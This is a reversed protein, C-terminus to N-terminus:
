TGSHGEACIEDGATGNGKCAAETVCSAVTLSNEYSRYQGPEIKISTLNLNRENCEMGPVCLTCKLASGCFDPDSGSIFTGIECECLRVSYNGSIRDVLTSGEPCSHDDLLTLSVPLVLATGWTPDETEVEHSFTAELAGQYAQTVRVFAQVFQPIDYTTKNFQLLTTNLSIRDEQHVCKPVDQRIVSITINVDEEPAVSLKLSYEVLGEQLESERIEILPISRILEPFGPILCTAGEPCELVPEKDYTCISLPPCVTCDEFSDAAIEPQYRGQPCNVCSETTQRPFPQFTGATCNQCQAQGPQNQYTGPLCDLCSNESVQNEKGQYTGVPCDSCTSQGPGSQYKGAPCSLCTSQGTENQFTGMPCSLCGDKEGFNALSNSFESAVYITKGDPSVVVSRAGGLSGTVFGTLSLSGTSVDREFGTVAGSLSAAVYVTTNSPSVTVSLPFDLSTVVMANNVELNQVADNYSLHGTSVDRNFIAITDSYGCAVYLHRGDGTVVVSRPGRCIEDPAKAVGLYLLESASNAHEFMTIAASTDSAVYVSSGHVTVAYAGDMDVKVKEDDIIYQDEHFVTGAYSLVGTSGNRQFYNLSGLNVSFWATCAVYVTEGDSSCAVSYAGNLPDRGNRRGPDSANYKEDYQTIIDTNNVNGLYILDGTAVNRTFYTLEGGNPPRATAYVHKGDPSVTVSTPSVLASASGGAVEVGAQNISGGYTLEGFDLDEDSRKFHTISKSNTSAVYVHVGYADVAYPGSLTEQTYADILSLLRTGYMGEACGCEATFIGMKESSAVYAYKPEPSVALSLPGGLSFESRPDDGPQSGSSRIRRTFTLEGTDTNRQLYSVEGTGTAFVLKGEIDVVLDQADRRGDGNSCSLEISRNQTLESPSCWSNVMLEERFELLGSTQDWAFTGITGNVDLVYVYQGDPSVTVSTPSNGVAEPITQSATFIFVGTGTGRTFVTIAPPGTNTVLLHQGDPFLVLATPPGGPVAQSGV